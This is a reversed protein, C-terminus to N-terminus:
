SGFPQMLCFLIQRSTLLAALTAYCFAQSKIHKSNKKELQPVKADAENKPVVFTHTSVTNNGNMHLNHDTSNEFAVAKLSRATNKVQRSLAYLRPM